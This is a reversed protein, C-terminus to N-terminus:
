TLRASERREERAKGSTIRRDKRREIGRDRDGKMGEAKERDNQMKSERQRAEKM